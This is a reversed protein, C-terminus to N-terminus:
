GIGSTNLGIWSDNIAGVKDAPLKNLNPDNLNANALDFGLVSDGERLYHGLHTKCHIYNEHTGLESARIVFVNALVHRDSLKGQGAFTM